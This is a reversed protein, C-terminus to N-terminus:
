AYRSVALALALAKQFDALRFSLPALLLDKLPALPGEWLDGALAAPDLLARANRSLSWRVSGQERAWGLLQDTSLQMLGGNWQAAIFVVGRRGRVMRELRASIDPSGPSVLLVAGQPARSMEALTKELGPLDEEMVLSVHALVSPLDNAPAAAGVDALLSALFPVFGGRERQLARAYAPNFRIRGSMRDLTRRRGDLDDVRQSVVPPLLPGGGLHELERVDERALRAQDRWILLADYIVHAAAAAAGWLLGGDLAGFLAYPLAAGAHRLLDATSAAFARGPHLIRKLLAHAGAFGLLAAWPATHSGLLMLPIELVLGALGWFPSRTMLYLLSNVGPLKKQDGTHHFVGTRLDKTEGVKHTETLAEMMVQRHCQLPDKEACLLCLSKGQMDAALTELSERKGELFRRYADRFETDNVGPQHLTRLEAPSGFEPLHRYAIGEKALADRLRDINYDPQFRSHPNTRVDVVVQVGSKKLGALFEGMPLGGHGAGVLAHIGPEHSKAAPTKAPLLVAPHYVGRGKTRDRIGFLPEFYERASYGGTEHVNVTVEGARRRARGLRAGHEELSPMKSKQLASLIVDEYPIAGQGLAKEVFVVPRGDELRKIKVIARALPRGKEDEVVALIKNRSSLDDVITSYHKPNGDANMCGVLEPSSMDRELLAAADTTFRVAVKERNSLLNVQDLRAQLEELPSVYEALGKDRMRGMLRGLLMKFESRQSVTPPAHQLKALWAKLEFWQELRYYRDLRLSLEDAAGEEAIGNARLFEKDEASWGRGKRTKQLSENLRRRQENWARPFVDKEWLDSFPKRLPEGDTVAVAEFDNQALMDLVDTSSRRLADLASEEVLSADDVSVVAPRTFIEYFAPDKALFSVMAGALREGNQLNRWADFDGVAVHRMSEALQAAEAQYLPNEKLGKQMKLASLLAPFSALRRAEDLPMSFLRAAAEVAASELAREWEFISASEPVQALRVIADDHAALRLFRELFQVRAALPLQDNLLLPQFRSFAAHFATNEATPASALWTVIQQYLIKRSSAKAYEQARQIEGLLGSVARLEGEAEPGSFVSLLPFIMYPAEERLFDLGNVRESADQVVAAIRGVWQHRVFKNSVDGLSVILARVEPSLDKIRAVDEPAIVGREYYLSALALIASREQDDAAVGQWPGFIEVAHRVKENAISARYEKVAADGEAGPLLKMLAIPNAVLAEDDKDGLDDLVYRQARRAQQLRRLVIEHPSGLKEYDRALGEYATGTFREVLGPRFRGVMRIRDVQHRPRAEDARMTRGGIQVDTAFDLPLEVQVEYSAATLDLGMGGAQMMVVVDRVDSDNQFRQLNYERRTLSRADPHSADLSWEGQETMYGRVPRDQDDHATGTDGGRIEAVPEAGDRSLIAEARELAHTRRAFFVGKRGQRDYHDKIRALEKWLPSEDQGGVQRPDSMWMLIFRLKDFPNMHNETLAPADAPRHENYWRAFARFDGLMMLIIREQEPTYFFGGMDAPDVERLQPLRPGQAEFPVVAPDEAEDLVDSARRSVSVLRMELRLSELGEATSPDYAKKFAKFDSFRHEDPSGKHLRYLTAYLKELDAGAPTASVTRIREARLKMLGEAQQSNSARGEGQFNAGLQSEDNILTHTNRSLPELEADSRRRLFETGVVAICATCEGIERVKRAKVAPSDTGEVVILSLGKLVEPKLHKLIEKRWNGRLSAPAVIVTKKSPDIDALVELSKGTGVDDGIHAGRHRSLFYAALRQYPRLVTKLHPAEFSMAERVQRDAEEYLEQFFVGHGESLERLRAMLAEGRRIDNMDRFALHAFINVLALRKREEMHSLDGAKSLYFNLLNESASKRGGGKGGASVEALKFEEFGRTVVRVEEGRMEEGKFALLVDRLDGPRGRLARVADGFEPMLGRVTNRGIAILEALAPGDVRGNKFLEAFKELEMRSPTLGSRPDEYRRYNAIDRAAWSERMREAFDHGPFRQVRLWRLRHSIRQSETLSNWPGYVASDYIPRAPDGMRGESLIEFLSDEGMDKYATEGEVPIPRGRRDPDIMYTLRVEDRLLGNWRQYANVLTDLDTVYPLYGHDEWRHRAPGEPNAHPFMGSVLDHRAAAKQTSDGQAWMREAEVPSIGQLVLVQSSNLIRAFAKEDQLLFRRAERRAQIATNSELYVMSPTLELRAGGEKRLDAAISQVLFLFERPNPARGAELSELVSRFYARWALQRLPTYPRLQSRLFHLRRLAREPESCEDWSSATGSFAAIPLLRGDWSRFGADLTWLLDNQRFDPWHISPPETLTDIVADVPIASLNHRERLSNVRELIKRAGGMLAGRDQAPGTFDLGELWGDGLGEAEAIWSLWVYLRQNSALYEWPGWNKEEDKFFANWATKPDRLTDLFEDEPLLLRPNAPSPAEPAPAKISPVAGAVAAGSAEAKAEESSPWSMHNWDRSIVDLKVHSLYGRLVDAVREEDGSPSSAEWFIRAGDGQRVYSALGGEKLYVTLMAREPSLANLFVAIDEPVAKLSGVHAASGAHYTFPMPGFRDELMQIAASHLLKMLSPHDPRAVAWPDAGSPTHRIFFKVTNQGDSLLISQSTRGLVKYILWSIFPISVRLDKSTGQSATVVLENEPDLPVGWGGEPLQEVRIRKGQPLLPAADPNQSPAHSEGLPRAEAAAQADKLSPWSILSWDRSIANLKIRSFYARLVDAVREEDGSPSSGEWFVRDGDLQRFYSALGGGKLYITLIARKPSLINLFASIDEPVEKMYGPHASSGGHYTFPMPGDQEEFRSLEISRRLGSMASWDSHRVVWDANSRPLFTATNVGDSLVVEAYTQLEAKPLLGRDSLWSLWESTRYNYADENQVDVQPVGEASVPRRSLVSIRERVPSGPRGNNTAIAPGVSGDGGGVRLRAVDMRAAEESSSRFPLALRVFSSAGSTKGSPLFYDLLTRAASQGESRLREGHLISLVHNQNEFGVHLEGSPTVISLFRSNSMWRLIDKLARARPLGEFFVHFPVGGLLVGNEPTWFRFPMPGRKERLAAANVASLIDALSPSEGEDYCWLKQGDSSIRAHLRVSRTGHELRVVARHISPEGLLRIKLWNLAAESCLGYLDTNNNSLDREGARKASLGGSSKEVHASLEGDPTEVVASENASQPAASKSINRLTIDQAQARAERESGAALAPSLLRRVSSRIFNGGPVFYDSLIRLRERVSEEDLPSGKPFTLFRGRAIFHLEGSPFYISFAEGLISVFLDLVNELAPNSTIEQALFTDHPAYLDSSLDGDKVFAFPLPGLKQELLYRTVSVLISRVEELDKADFVWYGGSSMVQKARIVVSRKGDDLRVVSRDANANGLLNDLVWEVSHKNLHRVLTGQHRSFSIDDDGRLPLGPGSELIVAKFPGVEALVRERETEPLPSSPIESSKTTEESSNTRGQAIRAEAVDKSTELLAEGLYARVDAKSGDKHTFYTQLGAIIERVSHRGPEYYFMHYYLQNNFRRMNLRGFETFIVFDGGRAPFGQFFAQSEAELGNWGGPVMDSGDQNKAREEQKGDALLISFPLPGFTEELMKRNASAILTRLSDEDRATCGWVFKGWSSVPSPHPDLIVSVPGEEWRIMGRSPSPLGLMRDELWKKLASPVVYPNSLLFHGRPNAPAEDKGVQTVKMTGPAALSRDSAPASDPVGQFPPLNEESRPDEESKEEKLDLSSLLNDVLSPIPLANLKKVEERASAADPHVLLLSFYSKMLKPLSWNSHRPASIEALFQIVARTKAHSQTNDPADVVSFIEARPFTRLWLEGFPTFIALFNPKSPIANLFKHLDAALRKDKLYDSPSSHGKTEPSDVFAIAFPLPGAEQELFYRNFARFFAEVKGRESAPSVWPWGKAERVEFRTSVSGDTVRITSKNRGIRGLDHLLWRLLAPKVMGKFSKVTGRLDDRELDLLRDGPQFPEFGEGSSFFRFPGAEGVLTEGEEPALVKESLLPPEDSQGSLREQPSGKAKAASAALRRVEAADGAQFTWSSLGPRLLKARLEVGGAEDELRVVARVAEPAGLFRKTIWAITAPTIEEMLLKNNRTFSQDSLLRAPLSEATGVLVTKLGGEQALVRGAQARDLPVEVRVSSEQRAEESSPASLIRWHRRFFVEAAGAKLYDAVVRLVKEQDDGEFKFDDNVFSLSLNGDAAFVYVPFHEPSLILLPRISPVNGAKQYGKVGSSDVWFFFPMPGFRNEAITLASARLVARLAEDEGKRVAWSRSMSQNVRAMFEVSRNGDSVTVSANKETPSDLVTDILWNVVVGSAGMDGVFASTKTIIVENQSNIKPIETLALDGISKHATVWLRAERGSPRDELIAGDHAKAPPLPERSLDRRALEESGALFGSNVLDGLGVDEPMLSELTDIVEDIAPDSRDESMILFDRKSTPTAQLHLVGSATVISIPDGPGTLLALFEKVGPTTELLRQHVDEGVKRKSPSWVAFPLAGLRERLLHRKVSRIFETAKTEQDRSVFWGWRDHDMKYARFVIATHGDSVEVLGNEPGADGLINDVMWKSHPSDIDKSGKKTDLFWSADRRSPKLQGFVPLPARSLVKFEGTSISPGAMGLVEGRYAGLVNSRVHPWASFVGAFVWAITGGLLESRLLPRVDFSTVAGVLTTAGLTATIALLLGSLLLFPRTHDRAMTRVSAEEHSGPLVEIRDRGFGRIVFTHHDAFWSERLERGLRLRDALSYTEQLSGMRAAAWSPFLLAGTHFFPVLVSLFLSEWLAAAGAVGAKLAKQTASRAPLRLYVAGPWSVPSIKKLAASGRAFWRFLAGSASRESLSGPVIREGDWSFRLEVTRGERSIKVWRAMGAAGVRVSALVGSSAARFREAAREPRVAAYLAAVKLSLASTWPRQSLSLNEGAVLKEIPTKDREFYTLYDGAADELQTIRPTFSVVTAGRATLLPAVGQAHFGGTVLVVVGETRPIRRLLNDAMARDRAQATRYFEEFSSLDGAEKLPSAAYERWEGPNLSFRALKDGLYLSRGRAALEAAAPTRFLSRYIRKEGDEAQHFLEEPNIRDAAIVYRAYRLFEPFRDLTVDARRCLDQFSRYFDGHTMAGARLAVAWRALVELDAAPLRASLVQVAEGREREAKPFDLADELAKIELFSRVAGRAAGTPWHADLTKLYDGLGREGRRYAEVDQDFRLLEASYVSTKRASAERRAGSIASLAAERAKLSGLYAGVNRQYLAEDDVGFAPFATPMSLLAHMPGTLDKEELLADAVALFEGSDSVAGASPFSLAGSAAELAVAKLQGAAALARVATSINRQADVNRHADHIHLVLPLDKRAHSPRAVGRVAGSQSPLARLLNDLSSPLAQSFGSVGEANLFPPRPAARPFHRLVTAGGALSAPLAAVSPRVASKRREEWFGAEVFPASTSQLLFLLASWLAISSRHRILLAPSAKRM